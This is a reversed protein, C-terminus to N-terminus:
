RLHQKVHVRDRGEAEAGAVVGGGGGGSAGWDCFFWSCASSM